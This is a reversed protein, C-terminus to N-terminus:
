TLGYSRELVEDPELDVALGQGAFTPFHFDATPLERRREIESRLGSVVLERLSLHQDHALQKAASALEDPLEITTKM